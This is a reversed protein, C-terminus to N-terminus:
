EQGEPKTETDTKEVPPAPKLRYLAPSTVGEPPTGSVLVGEPVLAAATVTQWDRAVLQGSGFTSLLWVGVVAPKSYVPKSSVLVSKGDPTIDWVRGVGGLLALPRPTIDIEQTEGMVPEHLRLAFSGDPNGAARYPIVLRRPAELLRVPGLRQGDALLHRAVHDRDFRYVLWEPLGARPAELRSVSLGFGDGFPLALPLKQAELPAADHAGPALEYESDPWPPDYTLADGGLYTEADGVARWSLLGDETSVAVTVAGPAVRVLKANVVGDENTALRTLPAGDADVVLVRGAPEAAFLLDKGGADDDKEHLKAELDGAGGSWTLQLGIWRDIPTATLYDESVQLRDSRVVARYRGPEAGTRGFVLSEGTPGTVGRTRSAKGDPLPRYTLEYPVGPVPRGDIDRARVCIPIDEGPPTHAQTYTREKTGTDLELYAPRGHFIVDAIETTSLCTAKVEVKGEDACTLTGHLRGGHLSLTLSRGAEGGFRLTGSAAAVEVWAGERAPAGDADVAAIDITAAHGAPVVPTVGLKLSTPEGRAPLEVIGRSSGKSPFDVPTQVVPLAGDYLLARYPGRDVPDFACRGAADTVGQACTGGPLDTPVDTRPVLRM